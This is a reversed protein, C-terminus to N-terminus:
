LVDGMNWKVEIDGAAWSSPGKLLGAQLMCLVSMMPHL